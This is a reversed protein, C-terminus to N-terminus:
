HNLLEACGYGPWTQGGRSTSRQGYVVSDSGRSVNSSGTLRSM